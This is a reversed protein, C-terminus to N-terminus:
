EATHCKNMDVLLVAILQIGPSDSADEQTIGWIFPPVLTVMRGTTFVIDRHIDSEMFMDREESTRLKLPLITTIQFRIGLKKEKTRPM